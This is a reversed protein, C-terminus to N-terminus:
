ILPRISSQLIAKVHSNQYELPRIQHQSYPSDHHVQIAIPTFYANKQVAEIMADAQMQQAM